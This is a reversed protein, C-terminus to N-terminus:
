AQQLVKLPAGASILDGDVRKYAIFGVNLEDAYREDMRLVNIGGAVRVAYGSFDGFLITKNGTTIASAMDQNIKVEKGLIFMTGDNSFTIPNFNEAATLGLKRVAAHVADNMMYYCSNGMRYAPDVSYYLDILEEHTIATASAATKGVTAATIIGNPKSSGDGTTLAANTARAIRQGLLETLYGILNVEEDQLLQKSVKVLTSYTYASLDTNGFTMDAVTTASGETQLAADVATDNVKPIPLTNGTATSFVRAVSEVEGIFQKAWDLEGTWGEPITYGGASDSTTQPNTGRLLYREERNLEQMGYRLYKNFVDSRSQKSTKTEAVAPTNEFEAKRAAFAELNRIQRDSENMAEILKDAKQLEDSSLNRSENKAVNYVDNLQNFLRGKETKLERLTKM